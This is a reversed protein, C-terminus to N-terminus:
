FWRASHAGRITRWVTMGCLLAFVGRIEAPLPILVVVAVAALILLGIIGMTPRM